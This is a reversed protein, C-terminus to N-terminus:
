LKYSLIRNRPQKEGLYGRTCKKIDSNKEKRTCKSMQDISEVHLRYWVINAKRQSIESLVIGELDMWTAAFSLFFTHTHNKKAIYNNELRHTM